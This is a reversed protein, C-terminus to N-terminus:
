RPSSCLDLTGIRQLSGGAIAKELTPDASFTARAGVACLAVVALLLASTRM